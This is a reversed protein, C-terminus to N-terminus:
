SPDKTGHDVVTAIATDKGQLGCTVEYYHGALFDHRVTPKATYRGTNCHVTVTHVGPLMKGKGPFGMLVPDGYVKADIAYIASHFVGVRALSGMVVALESDPRVPGEYAKADGGWAGAVGACGSVLFLLLPWLVKKM